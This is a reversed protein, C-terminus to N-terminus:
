FCFATLSDNSVPETLFSDSTGFQRIMDAFDGLSHYKYTRLNFQKKQPEEKSRGATSSAPPLQDKSASKEEAKKQQRRKRADAERKLERTNFSPCTKNSFDRFDAGIRVTTQDLIRLTDDTHM